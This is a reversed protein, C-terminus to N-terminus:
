PHLHVPPQLLSWPPPSFRGIISSSLAPDVPLPFELSGGDLVIPSLIITIIFLSLKHLTLSTSLSSYLLSLYTNILRYHIPISLRLYGLNSDTVEEKGRPNVLRGSSLGLVAQPQFPAPGGFPPSPFPRIQSARGHDKLRNVWAPARPIIEIDADHISRHKYLHSVGDM